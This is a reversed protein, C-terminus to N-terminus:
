GPATIDVWAGYSSFDTLGGSADTAAVAVVEPYAAPYQFDASGDNGAAAVVTVGESVAYSVADHLIPDDGAGGLSMNIVDAGNDVAWYIGEAVDADYGDGKADLVKVPMAKVNWGV